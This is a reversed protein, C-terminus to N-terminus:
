VNLLSFVDFQESQEPLQMLGDAAASDVLTLTVVVSLYLIGSFGFWIEKISNVFVDYHVL